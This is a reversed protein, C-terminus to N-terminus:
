DNPTLTDLWEILKSEDDIIGYPINVVSQSLMGGCEFENYLHVKNQIFDVTIWLRESNNAHMYTNTFGSEGCPGSRNGYKFGYKTLFNNTNRISNNVLGM